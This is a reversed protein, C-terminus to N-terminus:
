KSTSKGIVLAPNKSFRVSLTSTNSYAGEVLDTKEFESATIESKLDVQIHKTDTNTSFINTDNINSQSLSLSDKSFHAPSANYVKATLSHTLASTRSHLNILNNNSSTLTIDLMTNNPFPEDNARKIYIPRAVESPSTSGKMITGHDLEISRIAEGGEPRETIILGSNVIFAKTNIDIHNEGNAGINGTSPAAMLTASLALLGLLVKKM